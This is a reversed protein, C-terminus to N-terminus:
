KRSLYPQRHKVKAPIIVLYPALPPKYDMEGTVKVSLVATNIDVFVAPTGLRKKHCRTIDRWNM